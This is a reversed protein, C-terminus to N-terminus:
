CVVIALATCRLCQQPTVCFYHAIGTKRCINATGECPSGLARTHSTYMECLSVALIRAFKGHITPNKEEEGKKKQSTLLSVCAPM